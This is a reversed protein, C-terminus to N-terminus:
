SRWCCTSGRCSLRSTFVFLRLCCILHRLVSRPYLPLVGALINRTVSVEMIFRHQKAQLAQNLTRISGSRVAQELPLYQPLGVRPLLGAAPLSGLVLKLPM